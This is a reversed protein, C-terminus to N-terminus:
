KCMHWLLKYVYSCPIYICINVKAPHVYHGCYEHGVIVSWLKKSCPKEYLEYDKSKKFINKKKM